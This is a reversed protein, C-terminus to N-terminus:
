SSPLGEVDLLYFRSLYLVDKKTYAGVIFNKHPSVFTEPIKQEEGIQIHVIKQEYSYSTTLISDDNVYGGDFELDVAFIRGQSIEPVQINDITTWNLHPMYGYFDIITKDAKCRMTSHDISVSYTDQKEPDYGSTCIVYTDYECYGPYLYHQDTLKVTIM